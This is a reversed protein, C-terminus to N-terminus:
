TRSSGTSPWAASGRVYRRTPRLSGCGVLLAFCASFYRNAAELDERLWPGAAFAAAHAREWAAREAKQDVLPDRLTRQAADGWRDTGEPAPKPAPKEIAFKAIVDGREDIVLMREACNKSDGAPSYRIALKRGDPAPAMSVKTANEILAQRESKKRTWVVIRKNGFFSDAWDSDDKPEQAVGMKSELAAVRDALLDLKDKPEKLPEVAIVEVVVAGNALRSSAAIREGKV